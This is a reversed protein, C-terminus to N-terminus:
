NLSHYDILSIGHVVGDGPLTTYLPARFVKPCAMKDMRTSLNDGGRGQSERKEGRGGGGGGVCMCVCVRM